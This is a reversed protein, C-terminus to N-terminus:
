CSLRRGVFIRHLGLNHPRPRNQSLWIQPDSPQELLTEMKPNGKWGMYILFVTRLWLVSDQDCQEQQRLSNWSLGFRQIGHRARLPRPGRCPPGATILDWLGDKAMDMLFAYLNDDLFGTGKEIEVCVVALGEEAMEMWTRTHEGSFLHLVRTTAEM